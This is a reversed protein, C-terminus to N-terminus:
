DWKSIPNDVYYKNGWEILLKRVNPNLLHKVDSLDIFQLITQLKEIMAEDKNSFSSLAQCIIFKNEVIEEMNSQIVEPISFLEYTGPFFPLEENVITQDHGNENKIRQIVKEFFAITKDSSKIMCIGINVDNSYTNEHMFVMDKTTYKDLYEVFSSDGYIILDADSVISYKGPNKRLVNLLLEMKLTIGNFAHGEHSKEFFSQPFFVPMLKIGSIDNITSIMIRHFIEYAPSWAYYWPYM